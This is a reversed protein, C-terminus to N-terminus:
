KILRLIKISQENIEPSVGAVIWSEGLSAYEPYTGSKDFPIIAVINSVNTRFVFEKYNGVIKYESTTLTEVKLLNNLLCHSQKFLRISIM